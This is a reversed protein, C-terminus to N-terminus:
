ENLNLYNFYSTLERDKSKYSGNMLNRANDKDCGLIYALLQYKELDKINLTRLKNDIDLVKNAIKFRESLNLEKGNFLLSKNTKQKIEPALELSTTEIKLEMELKQKQYELFMKIKKLSRVFDEKLDSIDCYVQFDDSNVLPDRKEIYEIDAEISDLQLDIFLLEDNDEHRELFHNLESPYINTKFQKLTRNDFIRCIEIIWEENPFKDQISNILSKAEM